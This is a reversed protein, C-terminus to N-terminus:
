GPGQGFGGRLAALLRLGRPGTATARLTRRERGGLTLEVRLHDAPLVGAVRDCWEVVVAGSGDEYDRYGITELEDEDDLRYLDLHYLPFRAPYVNALTFTPSCVPVGPDTGLGRALGRAFVTKGAGLDGVLGIVDGPELARGIAEALQLTENESSTEYSFPPPSAGGEDPAQSTARGAVSRIRGTL